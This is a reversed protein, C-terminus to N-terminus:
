KYSKIIGVNGSDASEPKFDSLIYREADMHHNAAKDKITNEIPEYNQDLERSYTLKERLYEHCDDFVFIRNDKHMGNVRNIGVWVEKEKPKKIPWGAATFEGRWGDETPSGGVRKIINEGESLEKFKQAHDFGSM